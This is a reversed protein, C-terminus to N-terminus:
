FFWLFQGRMREWWQDLSAVTYIKISVIKDERSDVLDDNGAFLIDIAMDKRYILPNFNWTDKEHERVVDSMPWKLANFAADRSMCVSISSWSAPIPPTIMSWVLLYILCITALTVAITARM